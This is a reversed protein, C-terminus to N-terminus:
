LVERRKEYCFGAIFEMYLDSDMKITELIYEFYLSTNEGGM